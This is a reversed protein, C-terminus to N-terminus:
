IVPVLFDPYKKYVSFIYDKSVYFESKDNITGDSNYNHDFAVIHFKGHNKNSKILRFLHEIYEENANEIIKKAGDSINKEMEEPQGAFNPM